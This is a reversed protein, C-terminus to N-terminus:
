FSIRVSGVWWDSQLNSYRAAELHLFKMLRLNTGFTAFGQNDGARLGIEVWGDPLIRVEAGLHINDTYQGLAYGGLMDDGNPNDWTAALTVDVLKNEMELLTLPRAAASVAVNPPFTNDGIGGVLNRGAVGLNLGELPTIITGFDISYGFQREILSTIDEGSGLSFYEETFRDPNLLDSVAFPNDVDSAEGRGILRATTGFHVTKIYPKDVDLRYALSMAFAGQLTARYIVHDDLIQLIPDPWPLGRKVIRFDALTQLYLSLGLAMQKNVLPISLGLGVFDVKTGLHKSSLSTVQDVLKTRAGALSPDVLPNSSGTLPTVVESMFETMGLAEGLIDQTFWGRVPLFQFSVKEIQTLGAPNYHMASLDDAIAEYANGMSTARLGRYLFLPTEDAWTVLPLLVLLVILIQKLNVGRIM